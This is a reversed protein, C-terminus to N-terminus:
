GTTRIKPLIIVVSGVVNYIGYDIVGLINLLLRVTYLSVLLILLMRIYLMLTNSIIKARGSFSM